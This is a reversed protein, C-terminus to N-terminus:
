TRANAQALLEPPLWVRTVRWSGARLDMRLRIPPTPGPARLDVLFQTPGAFFAWAVHVPAGSPVNRPLPLHAAAVLAEPTIRADVASTVIGRVFGAGFPPLQYVAKAEAPADIALGCIDKKIGTRVSPWDVLTVLTAADGARIARSLRYLTVYPYVCYAAVVALLVGIVPRKGM